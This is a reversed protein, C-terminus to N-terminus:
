PDHPSLGACRCCCCCVEPNLCLNKRSTLGLGLFDEREGLVEARYDMLRRLEELAKEIEPVTRSCYILRRPAGPASLADTSAPQAHFLQYAVIVSLLSITKGTGSPMELLCHGQATPPHTAPSPNPPGRLM